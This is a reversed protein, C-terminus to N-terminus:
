AAKTGILSQIWSILENEDFPKAIFRPVGAILALRRDRETCHASLVIVQLDGSKFDVALRRRQHDNFRLRRCGIQERLVRDEEMYDIVATKPEALGAM